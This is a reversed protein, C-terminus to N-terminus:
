QNRHRRSSGLQEAFLRCIESVVVANDDTLTFNAGAMTARNVFVAIAGYRMAKAATLAAGADTVDLSPLRSTAEGSLGL